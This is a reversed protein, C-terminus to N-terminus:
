TNLNSVVSELPKSVTDRNSTNDRIGSSTDSSWVLRNKKKRQWLRICRCKKLVRKRISKTMALYLIANAWGQGPDGIAQFYILFTYSDCFIKFSTLQSILKIQALWRFYGWFRLFLYAIPILILKLDQETSNWTNSKIRHSIMSFLAVLNLISISVLAIFDWLKGTLLESYIHRIIEDTFNNHYGVFCWGASVTDFGPGLRNLLLGLVSVLLPFITGIAVLSRFIYKYGMWQKHITIILVIHIALVTTWFYSVLSFFVNFTSQAVCYYEEIHPKNKYCISYDPNVLSWIHATSFFFANFFDAISIFLLFYRATTQLEKISYFSLIILFAGIISAFDSLIGVVFISPQLCSSNQFYTLNSVNEPCINGSGIWFYKLIDSVNNQM